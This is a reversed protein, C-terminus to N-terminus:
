LYIIHYIISTVKSNVHCREKVSNFDGSAHIWFSRILLGLRLQVPKFLAVFLCIRTRLLLVIKLFITSSRFCIYKFNLSDICYGWLYISVLSALSLLVSPAGSPNCRDIHGQVRIYGGGCLSFSIQVIATHCM